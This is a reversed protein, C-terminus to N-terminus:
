AKNENPILSVGGTPRPPGNLAGCGASTKRLMQIWFAARTNVEEEITRCSWAYQMHRRRAKATLLSTRQWVVFSGDSADLSCLLGFHICHGIRRWDSLVARRISGVISRFYLSFLNMQLCPAECFSSPPSAAHHVLWHFGRFGTPCFHFLFLVWQTEYTHM